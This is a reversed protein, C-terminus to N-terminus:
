VATTKRKNDNYVKERLLTISKPAEFVATISFVSNNEGASVFVDPALEARHSADITQILELRGDNAQIKFNTPNVIKIITFKADQIYFSQGERFGLALRGIENSM